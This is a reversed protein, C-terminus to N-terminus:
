ARLSSSPRPLSRFAVPLHLRDSIRLHGFPSVRCISSIDDALFTVRPVSVDLYGSSSFIIIIGCTTALSRPVAWVLVIRRIPTTPSSYLYYNHSSTTQFVVGYLTIAGYLFCTNSTSYGSYPPAPSVRDSNPPVM